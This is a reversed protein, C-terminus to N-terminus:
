LCFKGPEDTGWKTLPAWPLLSSAPGGMCGPPLPETRHRSAWYPARPEPSLALAPRDGEPRPTGQLIEARVHNKVKQSPNSSEQLSKFDMPDKFSMHSTTPQRPEPGHPPAQAASAPAQAARACRGEQEPPQKERGGGAGAQAGARERLHM